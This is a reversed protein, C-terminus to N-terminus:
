SSRPKKEGKNKPEAKPCEEVLEKDTRYEVKGCHICVKFNRDDEDVEFFHRHKDLTSDAL